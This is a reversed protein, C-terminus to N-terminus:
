EKIKFEIVWVYPNSEWPYGRKENISNWLSIWKEILAVQDHFGPLGLSKVGEKLIDDPTIDQIREVRVDIIVLTIRSAARPMFISPKWKVANKLETPYNDAKYIYGPGSTLNGGEACTERVWLEMGKEYPCKIPNGIGVGTGVKVHTGQFLGGPRHYFDKIGIGPQPKIIRRTQTKNGALIAKIGWTQFLIPKDKM